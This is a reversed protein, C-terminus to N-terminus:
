RHTRFRNVRIGDLDSGCIGSAVVHVLAEGPAVHPEEVDLLEISNLATFVIVKM